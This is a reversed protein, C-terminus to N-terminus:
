GAPGGAEGKTDIITLEPGRVPVLLSAALQDGNWLRAYEFLRVAGDANKGIWSGGQAVENMREWALAARSIDKASIAECAPVHTQALAPFHGVPFAM